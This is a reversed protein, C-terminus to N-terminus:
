YPLDLYEYAYFNIIRQGFGKYLRESPVDKRRKQLHRIFLQQMTNLIM